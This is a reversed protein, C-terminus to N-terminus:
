APVQTASDWLVEGYAEARDGHEIGVLALGNPSELDCAYVDDGGLVTEIPQTLMVLICRPMTSVVDDQLDVFRFEGGETRYVEVGDHYGDRM